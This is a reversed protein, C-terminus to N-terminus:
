CVRPTIHWCHLSVVRVAEVGITSGQSQSDEGTVGGEGEGNCESGDHVLDTCSMYIIIHQLYQQTFKAATYHIVNSITYISAIKM